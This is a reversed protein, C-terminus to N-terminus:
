SLKADIFKVYFYILILNRGLTFKKNGFEREEMM